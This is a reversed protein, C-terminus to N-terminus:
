SYVTIRCGSPAEIPSVWNWSGGTCDKDNRVIERSQLWDLLAKICNDGDARGADQNLRILVRFVGNIRDKPFQRNAIVHMDATALWNKYETSRHVRGRGRRWIRNVSPPFPLDLTIQVSEVTQPIAGGQGPPDVHTHGNNQKQKQQWQAPARVLDGPPSLDGVVEFAAGPPALGAVGSIHIAAGRKSRRTHVHIRKVPKRLGSM